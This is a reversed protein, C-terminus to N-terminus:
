LTLIFSDRLHFDPMPQPHILAWFTEEGHRSQIVSTIGTLIRTESELIASLDIAAELEICDIENSFELGPNRLSEEERFGIRRYADMRFANWDGSPSFNFEWYQPQEPLALFFEFCTELWLNEKRGPQPNPAPLLVEDIKGTLSYHVTLINGEREINGTISVEPIEPGPHPVLTFPHSTM